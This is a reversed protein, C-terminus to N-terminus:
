HVRFALVRNRVHPHSQPMSAFPGGRELETWRGGTSLTALTEAYGAVPEDDRLTFVIMGGRRTVRCLEPLCGAPAHGTTLVGCAVVADYADTTIPLPQGLTAVLLSRYAGTLEAQRLMGASLDLADITGFGLRELLVGVQGTGAGVDLVGASRPVLREAVAVLAAPGHWDLDEDYVEAIRDYEAGLEEPSSAGYLRDVDVGSERQDSM